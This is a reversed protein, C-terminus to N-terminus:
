GHWDVDSVERAHRVIFDRRPEVKQSMLIDFMEQAALGDAIDVQALKRKEPDMTTDYLDVADMEGLGKFRTIVIDRKGKLEKLLQDREAESQAYKQTDKGVRIRFLPPQAVYVYGEEILPRMYLWFFTLLLTRIHDGDVDADTMLIIKHYRLRSLDYGNKKGNSGNGNTDNGNDSEASEGNADSAEGVAIGTGLATILARIENNDLVKDLRAKGVNIIKGRLPLVAQTRRDRGQKASGGASDGEVLFLECKSPDRETCDALKGPLSNSELASQRRVLDAHKRAAERARQA